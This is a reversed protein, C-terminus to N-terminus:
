TWPTVEERQDEAGATDGFRAALTIRARHLHTKVTGESTGLVAAVDALAYDCGYHLAVAQAQKGPLRRVEAWFREDAEAMEPLPDRRAAIRLLARGEALRRRSSSLAANVCTRRVYAAPHEMRAIEDWRKYAVVMADQAIDEAHERSGSLTRALTVLRPYERRFFSDYSEVVALRVVTTEAVVDDPEGQAM